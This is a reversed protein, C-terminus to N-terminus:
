AGIVMFRRAIRDAFREMETDSGLFQDVKITVGGGTKGVDGRATVQEGEGAGACLM